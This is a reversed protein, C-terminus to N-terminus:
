AAVAARCGHAARASGRAVPASARAM